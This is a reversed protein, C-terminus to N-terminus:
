GAEYVHACGTVATYDTRIISEPINNYTLTIAKFVCRAVYGATSIYALILATKYVGIHVVFTTILVLGM